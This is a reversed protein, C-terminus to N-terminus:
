LHHGLVISCLPGPACSPPGSRSFTTGLDGLRRGHGLPWERAQTEPFTVEETQTECGEDALHYYFMGDWGSCSSGPSPPSGRLVLGAAAGLPKRESDQSETGPPAQPGATGQSSSTM